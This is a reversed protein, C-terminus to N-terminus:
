ESLFDRKLLKRERHKVLYDSIVVIGEFSYFYFTIVFISYIDIKSMYMFILVLMLGFQKIAFNILNNTQSCALYKSSEEKINNLYSIDGSLKPPCKGM